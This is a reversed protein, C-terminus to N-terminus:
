DTEDKDAEMKDKMHQLFWNGHPTLGTFTLVARSPDDDAAKISVALHKDTDPNIVSFEEIVNRVADQMRKLGDENDVEFISKGASQSIVKKVSKFLSMYKPTYGNVLSRIDRAHTDHERMEPGDPLARVREDHWEMKDLLAREYATKQEWLKENEEELAEMTAHLAEMDDWAKQFRRPNDGNLRQERGM